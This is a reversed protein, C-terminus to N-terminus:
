LQNYDQTKHTEGHRRRKKQSEGLMKAFCPIYNFPSENKCDTTQTM